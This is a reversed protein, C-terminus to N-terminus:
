GAPRSVGHVEVGDVDPNPLINVTGGPNAGAAPGDGRPLEATLPDEVHRCNGDFFAGTEVALANHLIDGEVHASSALTVRRARVGGVVRGRITVENAVIDGNVTAKEGVTLSGSRINGELRGDIQIDGAARKNSSKTTANSESVTTKTLTDDKSRSFM